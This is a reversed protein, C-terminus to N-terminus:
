VALGDANSEEVRSCDRWSWQALHGKASDIHWKLIIGQEESRVTIRLTQGLNVPM